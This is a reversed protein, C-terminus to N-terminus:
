WQSSGGIRRKSRIPQTRSLLLEQPSRPFGPVSAENGHEKEAPHRLSKINPTQPEAPVWEREITAPTYEEGPRNVVFDVTVALPSDYPCEEHTGQIGGRLPPGM